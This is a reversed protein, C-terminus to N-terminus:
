LLFESAADGNYHLAMSRTGRAACGGATRPKPAAGNEALILASSTDMFFDATSRASQRRQGHDCKGLAVLNGGVIGLGGIGPSTSGMRGASWRTPSFQELVRVLHMGILQGGLNGAHDILQGAIAVALADSVLAQMGAKFGLWPACQPMQM